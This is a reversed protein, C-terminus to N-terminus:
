DRRGAPARQRLQDLSRRLGDLFVPLDSCTDRDAVATLNLQGAYSLAGVGLTMNGMIPVVPFVTMLRAGALYLPTPPGPVNAVYANFFRQRRLLHLAARQVVPLGFVGGTFGQPRPRAKRQATEARILQLRRLPDAEGVPLHVAMAGDVNGRAQGAPGGHLSVPVMARLVLGDVREGRSRLLDRLGGAVAALVVDNVTGCEGHAAHKVQDLSAPAVGILRDPGIPQNLSTRVAREEGIMERVAPWARRMRRVTRVPHALRPLAESIGRVHRWTNDALLDSASPVPRPAWAPAAAPLANPDLDLLAGVLAVGAVGDAIVHHLRMFMGVQGGPLGPLLWLQWLPRSRDLPRRRLQACAKLLRELDAPPALPRVRVHDALVFSQDDVWLPRGQGWRPHYVVQRLRPVLHLRAAVAERAAALRFTGDPDFLAAGDLVAIVGIEQPWGLREPWLNSLDQGTLRDLGAADRRPVRWPARFTWHRRDDGRPVTPSARRGLYGGCIM